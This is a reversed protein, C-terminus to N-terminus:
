AAKKVRRTLEGKPKSTIAAGLIVGAVGVVIMAVLNHAITGVVPLMGLLANLPALMLALGGWSDEAEAM